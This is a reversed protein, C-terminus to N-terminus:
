QNKQEYHIEEFYRTFRDIFAQKGFRNIITKHITEKDFSIKEELFDKLSSAFSQYDTIDYIRGIDETVYDEVGGCRTSFIPLGCCAAELASVPQGEQISTMIFCDVRNYLKYLENRPVSPILEIDNYFKSEKLQNILDEANKSYGKNANYGAVIVKFPIQTISKLEDFVKIFMEYQKYFSNAAVILFTKEDHPTPLMSFMTEDVLNGIYKINKLHINQLLVQRIKDNSIALFLDANEIAQKQKDSLSTGPWPFPAHEALVFPVNVAKAFLEAEIAEDQATVGYVFDFKLEENKKIIRLIQKFLCNIYNNPVYKGIGDERIRLKRKKMFNYFPIYLKLSLPIYVHFVYEKTNKEENICQIKQLRFLKKLLYVFTFVTKYHTKIVIFDFNAELAIAQEKFFSGQFPNEKTPFWSPLMLITKKYEM